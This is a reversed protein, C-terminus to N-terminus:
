VYNKMNKYMYMYIAGLCPCVVGQTLIKIYVYVKQWEPWKSYTEEMLHSELLKGWKFACSVLNSGQQLIPWPWWKFLNHHAWPRLAVYRAVLDNARQNQLLNQNKYIHTHRGGQDHSGSGMFLSKNGWGVSAGYSIQSQNAWRNQLLLDKFITSPGNRM